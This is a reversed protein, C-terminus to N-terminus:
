YLPLDKNRYYWERQRAIDAKLEEFMAIYRPDDRISDLYFNYPMWDWTFRWNQDIARRLGALAEETNGRLAALEVNEIGNTFGPGAILRIGEIADEIADLLRESQEAEGM